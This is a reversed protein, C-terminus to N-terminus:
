SRSQTWHQLRAAIRLASEGDATRLGVPCGAALLPEIASVFSSVNSGVALHLATMGDNRLATAPCGADILLRMANIASEYAFYPQAGSHLVTNGQSDTKLADAGASLLLKLCTVDRDKAAAHLPTSGDNAPINVSDWERSRAELLLRLISPKRCAVAFYVLTQGEPNKASLSSGHDLLLAIMKLTSDSPQAQSGHIDFRNCLVHLATSDDGLALASRGHAILANFL